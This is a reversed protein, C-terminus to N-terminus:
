QTVLLALSRRIRGVEREGETRWFEIPFTYSGPQLAPITLAFRTEELSGGALSSREVHGPLLVIETDGTDWELPPLDAARSFSSVEFAGEVQTGPSGAVQLSPADTFIPSGTLLAIPVELYEEKGGPVTALFMLRERKLESRKSHIRLSMDLTGGAPIIAGSEQGEVSVCSCSSTGRRLDVQVPLPNALVLTEHVVENLPVHFFPLAPIAGVEAISAAPPSQAQAPAPACGALAGLAALALLGRYRPLTRSHERTNIM